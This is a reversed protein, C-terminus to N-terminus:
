EISEKKEEIETTEEKPSTETSKESMYNRRPRDFRKRRGKEEKHKEIKAEVHLEMVAYIDQYIHIRYKYNGQFKIHENLEIQKRDILTGFNKIEEDKNLEESINISTVTGFLRGKDGAPVVLKIKKTELLEKLKTAVDRKELKRKEYYDKKSEIDALNKKSCEIALGKPLLFNRAYGRKVTKIDGEEGLTSIDKTLIVKLTSM